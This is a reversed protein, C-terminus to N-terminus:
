DISFAYEMTDPLYILSKPSMLLLCMSYLIDM